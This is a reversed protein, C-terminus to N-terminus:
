ATEVGGVHGAADGALHLAAVAGVAREVGILPDVVLVLAAVVSEDDIGERGGVLRNLIGAPLGFGLIVAAGGAHQDTRADATQGADLRGCKKQVLLTRAPDAREEDWARQDIKGCADHRDVEAVLSRVVGDDGGAGGARMRDAIRGAHDRKPSASTM